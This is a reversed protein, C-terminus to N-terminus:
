AVLYSSLLYNDKDGLGQLKRTELFEYEFLLVSLRLCVKMSIDQSHFNLSKHM